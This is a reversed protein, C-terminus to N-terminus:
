NSTKERMKTAKYVINSEMEGETADEREREGQEKGGFGEERWNGARALDNVLVGEEKRIPQHAWGLRLSVSM